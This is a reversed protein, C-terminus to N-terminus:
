DQHPDPPPPNPAPNAPQMPMNMRGNMPMKTGHGSMMQQHMQMMQQMMGMMQQMEAESACERGMMSARQVVTQHQSHGSPAPRGTSPSALLLLVGGVSLALNKM